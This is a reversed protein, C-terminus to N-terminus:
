SHEGLLYLPFPTSLVLTALAILLLPKQIRTPHHTLFTQKEPSRTSRFGLCLDCLFWSPAEPFSAPTSLHSLLKSPLSLCEESPVPGQPAVQHGLSESRLSLMNSSSLEEPCFFSLFLNKKPAVEFYIRTDM